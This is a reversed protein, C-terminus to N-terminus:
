IFRANVVTTWCPTMTSWTSRMRLCSWGSRVSAPMVGHALPDFRALAGLWGGRKCYVRDNATSGPEYYRDADWDDPPDGVADVKSLINQWYETVDAAGPFICAMGVIAVDRSGANGKASAM